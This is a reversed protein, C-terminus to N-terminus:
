DAVVTLSDGDSLEQQGVVVLHQGEVLGDVLVSDKYVVVLDVPMKKAKNNEEIFVYRGEESVIVADVPIVIKDDFSQKLIKLNAIMNPALKRQPNPIEIEVQFTRNSPDISQHVFTVKGKINLDPYTDFSIFVPTGKRIYRRFREAVGAIIKVRSNDILDFLPTNPMLFAGPDQFRNNIFGSIPANIFLKSYRSKALNFQAQARELGYKANLFDNESIAKKDFLIKSSRYNVEAQKLAAVADEYAAKVGTNELIALTDGERVYSGKDRLINKLTGSEEVVINVRNKAKVTGTVRLYDAFPRPKLPAIKVPTTKAEVVAQEASSNSSCSLLSAMAMLGIIFLIIKKM